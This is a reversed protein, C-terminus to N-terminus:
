GRSLEKLAALAAQLEDSLADVSAADAPFGGHELVRSQEALRTVGFTQGNSKLSHAARRFRDAAGDALATRLEAILGPAEEAFTDVLEVVFDTGASEQLDRFIAPDILPRDM